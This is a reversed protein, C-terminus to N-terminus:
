ISPGTSCGAAEDIERVMQQLLTKIEDMEETRETIQDCLQGVLVPRTQILRSAEPLQLNRCYAIGAERTLSGSKEEYAPDIQLM